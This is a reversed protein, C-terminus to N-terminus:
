QKTFESRRSGPTWLDSLGCFRTTPSSLKSVQSDVSELELVRSDLLKFEPSSETSRTKTWGLKLCQPGSCVHRYHIALYAKKSLKSFNTSLVSQM